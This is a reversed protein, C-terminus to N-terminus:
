RVFKSLHINKFVFITAFNIEYGIVKFKEGENVNKTAIVNRKLEKLKLYSIPNEWSDPEKAFKSRLYDRENITSIIDTLSLM